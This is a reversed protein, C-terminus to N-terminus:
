KREEKDKILDEALKKFLNINKKDKYLINKYELITKEDMLYKNINKIYMNKPIVYDINHKIINKIDYMSFYSKDNSIAENLVFYCNDLETDKIISSFTKSNKLDSINNTLMYLISDSNDLTVINVTNLIHSTDILVVDYKYIATSIIISIYKPDFKNISRPDKPAALLDLKDNYKYVYDELKEYRNNSLDEVLNFVTKENNSNLITALSGSYLDMDIILTSYGLSNYTNALLLTTLSKGVGGKTSTISIVKGKKLNM